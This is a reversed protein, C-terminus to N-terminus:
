IQAYKPLYLSINSWILKPYFRVTKCAYKLLPSIGGYGVLSSHRRERISGWSPDPLVDPSERAGGHGTLPGSAPPSAIYQIM